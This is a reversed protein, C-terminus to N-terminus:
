PQNNLICEERQAELMEIATSIDRVETITTNDSWNQSPDDKNLFVVNPIEPRFLCNIKDEENYTDM